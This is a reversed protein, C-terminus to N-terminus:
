PCIVIRSALMEKMFGCSSNTSCNSEAIGPDANSRSPVLSDLEGVNLVLQVNVSRLKVITLKVEVDWCVKLSDRSLLVTTMASLLVLSVTQRKFEFEEKKLNPGSKMASIVTNGNMIGKFTIGLVVGGAIELTSTSRERPNM